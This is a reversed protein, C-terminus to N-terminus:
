NRKSCQLCCQVLKKRYKALDDVFKNAEELQVSKIKKDKHMLAISNECLILKEKETKLPLNEQMNKKNLRNFALEMIM